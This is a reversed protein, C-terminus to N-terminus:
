MPVVLLPRPLSHGRGTGEESYWIYCGLWWRGTYVCLHNIVLKMNNSTASYNGRCELPNVCNILLLLQYEATWISTVVFSTIMIATNRVFKVGWWVLCAPPRTISEVQGNIQGDTRGNDFKHVCYKSFSHLSKSAFQCLHDVSCSCPVTFNQFWFTLTWPWMLGLNCKSAQRPPATALRYPTPSTTWPDHTRAGIIISSRLLRLCTTWVGVAENVRYEV